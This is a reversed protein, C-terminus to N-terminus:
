GKGYGSNSVDITNVGANRFMVEFDPPKSLSSNVYMILTNDGKGGDYVLPGGLNFDSNSSGIGNVPLVYCTDNGGGGFVVNVGPGGTMYDDGDGGSIWDDGADGILYDNGRSGTLQDNGAGGYASVSQYFGQLTFKPLANKATIIDDGDDGYIICNGNYRRSPTGVTVKDNGSGGHVIDQEWSPSQMNGTLVVKDDGGNAFVNTNRIDGFSQHAAGRGSGITVDVSGDNRDVSIVDNGNTGNISLDSTGDGNPFLTYNVVGSFMRREELVQMVALELRKGHHM